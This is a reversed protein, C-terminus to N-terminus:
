LQISRRSSCNRSETWWSIRCNGSWNSYLSTLVRVRVRVQGGMVGVVGHWQGSISMGGANNGPQM